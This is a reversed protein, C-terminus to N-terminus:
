DLAKQWVGKSAIAEFGVAANVALMPRNEGANETLIFPSEPSFSELQRINTTKVITGLRNGRHEELVLTLGQQVPRTRHRPVTVGNFAVLAGSPLYEVAAALLTGGSTLRRDDRARVRDADWHDEVVELNGSPSDTRLRMIITAMDDLWRDPTRHTWTHVRYDPGAAAVAADHLPDIVTRDVPLRLVSERWVQELQYGRNVMFRVTADDRPLSGHGTPPVIQPGAAPLHHTSGQVIPHDSELAFAELDDFLATGAGRNRFDPLVGVQFWLVRSPKDVEWSVFSSAVIRGDLRAVRARQQEHRHDLLYPLREEPTASGAAPGLVHSLVVNRLQSVERFADGGPQDLNDPIVLEDIAIPTSL